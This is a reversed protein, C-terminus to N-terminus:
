SATGQGRRTVWVKDGTASIMAADAFEGRRALDSWVAKIRKFQEQWGSLDMRLALKQGDLFIEVQRSGLVKVWAVQGMDFPTEPGRIMGLLESLRTDGPYMGDGIDLIPLSATEGPHMPAIVRGDKDAYYLGSGQRTWFEPVREQISIVLRGPLERRIAASSVWPNASVANEVETLNLDLSNQGLKIEALELVDGNSLHSNGAVSIDKLALSPHATIWRYGYLLAIGLVILLGMAIMAMFVRTIFGMISEGHTHRAPKRAAKRFRNSKHKNAGLKLKSGKNVALTSM